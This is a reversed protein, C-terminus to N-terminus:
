GKPTEPRRSWLLRESRPPKRQLADKFMLYAQVGAAWLDTEVYHVGPYSLSSDTHIGGHGFLMPGGPAQGARALHQGLHIESNFILAEPKGEMLSDVAARVAQEQYVDDAEVARYNVSVPLRASELGRWAVDNFPTGASLGLVGIRRAGLEHAWRLSERLRQETNSQVQFFGPIEEDTNMLVVAVGMKQLGELVGPSLTQAQYIIGGDVRGDLLERAQLNSRDLELKGEGAPMYLLVRVGDKSAASTVGAHMPAFYPHMLIWPGSPCTLGLAGTHGTQLARAQLNPRYELREAAEMIRRRTTEIVRPDGRLARSVTGATVGSALAVDKITPRISSM